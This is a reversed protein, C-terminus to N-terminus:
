LIPGINISLILDKLLPNQKNRIIKGVRIVFDGELYGNQGIIPVDNTLSGTKSVYVIDDFNATTTINDIIGEQLIKGESQDNIAEYTVGFMSLASQEDRIDILGLEGDINVGVPIARQIIQGTDNTKRVGVTSNEIDVVFQRIIPNYAM